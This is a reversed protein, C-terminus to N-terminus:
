HCTSLRSARGSFRCGGFHFYHMRSCSHEGWHCKLLESPLKCERKGARARVRERVLFLRLSVQIFCVARARDTRILPLNRKRRSILLRFLTPAATTICRFRNGSTRPQYAVLAVFIGRPFNTRMWTISFASFLCAPIAGCRTVTCAIRLSCDAGKKRLGKKKVRRAHLWCCARLM